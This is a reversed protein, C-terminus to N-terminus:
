CGGFFGGLGFGAELLEVSQNQSAQLLLSNRIWDHSSQALRCCGGATRQREHPEMENFVTM